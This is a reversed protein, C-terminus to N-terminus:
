IEVLNSHIPIVNEMGPTQRLSCMCQCMYIQAYIYNLLFPSIEHSATWSNGLSTISPSLEVVDLVDKDGWVAGTEQYVGLSWNQVWDSKTVKRETMHQVAANQVSDICLMRGTGLVLKALQLKQPAVSIKTEILLHFCSCNQPEVYWEGHGLQFM